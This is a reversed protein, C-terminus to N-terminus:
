EQQQGAAPLKMATDWLTDPRTHFIFAASTSVVKWAGAEIERQLQGYGWGAYGKFVRYEQPTGTNHGFEKGKTYSIDLEPIQVAEGTSFGPSHLTYYTDTGVPGGTYPEGPKLPPRNLVLGSAEYGNQELVFIVAKNFFSGRMKDTAVLIKHNASGPQKLHYPFWLLLLALALLAVGEIPHPSSRV